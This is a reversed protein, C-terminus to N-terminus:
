SVLDGFERAGAAKGGAKPKKHLFVGDPSTVTYLWGNVQTLLGRGLCRMLQLLRGWQCGLVHCLLARWHM